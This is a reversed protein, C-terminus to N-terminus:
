KIKTLVKFVRNKACFEVFYNETDYIELGAHRNANNDIFCLIRGLVVINNCFCGVENKHFQLM